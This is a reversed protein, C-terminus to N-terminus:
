CQHLNFGQPVNFPKIKKANMRRRAGAAPCSTGMPAGKDWMLMDSIYIDLQAASDGLHRCLGESQFERSKAPGTQAASGNQHYKELAPARSTAPLWRWTGRSAARGKSSQLRHKIPDTFAVPYLAFRITWNVVPAPRTGIDHRQRCFRKLRSVSMKQDTSTAFPKKTFKSRVRYARPRHCAVLAFSKEASSGRMFDSYALWIACFVDGALHVDVEYPSM